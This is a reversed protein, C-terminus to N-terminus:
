VHRGMPCNTCHQRNNFLEFYILFALLYATVLFVRTIDKGMGKHGVDRTHLTV